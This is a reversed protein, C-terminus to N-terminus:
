LMSLAHKGSYYHREPNNVPVCEPSPLLCSIENKDKDNALYRFYVELWLLGRQAVREPFLALKKNGAGKERKRERV